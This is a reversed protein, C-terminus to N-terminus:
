LRAGTKTQDPVDHLIVENTIVEICSAIPGDTPSLLAAEAALRRRFLRLEDLDKFWFEEICDAALGWASLGESQPPLTTNMCYGIPWGEAAISGALVQRRQEGTKRILSDCKASDEYKLLRFLKVANDDPSAIMLRQTEAALLCFNSVPERFTREEDFEMDAQSSVDARHALRAQPSKHWILGVGDYDDSIGPM